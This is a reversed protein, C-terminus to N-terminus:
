QRSRKTGAPDNMAPISTTDVLGTHLRRDLFPSIAQCDPDRPRERLLDMQFLVRRDIQRDSGAFEDDNGSFGRDREFRQDFLDGVLIPVVLDFCPLANPVFDPLGAYVGFRPSTTHSM